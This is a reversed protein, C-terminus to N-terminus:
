GGHRWQGCAEKVTTVDSSYIYITYNIYIIALMYIGLYKSAHCAFNCDDCRVAGCRKFRLVTTAEAYRYHLKVSSRARSSEQDSIEVNQVSLIATLADIM